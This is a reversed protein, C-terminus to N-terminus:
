SNSKCPHGFGTTNTRCVNRDLLVDRSPKDSYCKHSKSSNSFIRHSRTGRCSVVFPSSNAAGNYM